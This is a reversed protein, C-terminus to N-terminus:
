ERLDMSSKKRKEDNCTCTYVHMRRKVDYEQIYIIFKLRGRILKRSYIITAILFKEISFGKLERIDRWLQRYM